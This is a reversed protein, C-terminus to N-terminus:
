PSLSSVLVGVQEKLTSEFSRYVGDFGPIPQLEVRSNYEKRAQKISYSRPLSKDIMTLEHYFADGVGFKDLLYLIQLVRDREAETDAVRSTSEPTCDGFKVVVPKGTATHGQLTDLTIGFSEAFWLAQETKTSFDAM